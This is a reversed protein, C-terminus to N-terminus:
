VSWTSPRPMRGPVAATIRSRPTMRMPTSGTPQVETTSTTTSSIGILTLLVLMIMAIVIVSGNENGLPNIPRRNM